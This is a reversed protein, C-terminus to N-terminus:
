STHADSKRAWDLAERPYAEARKYAAEAEHYQGRAALLEAHDSEVQANWNARHYDDTRPWTRADSILADNRHVYIEAQKLDGLNIYLTAINRNALFNWERGGPETIPRVMRKRIALAKNWEGARQYETALRGMITNLESNSLRSWEGRKFAMDCDAVANTFDGLTRRAQCRGYYFAALDENAWGSGPEANAKTHLQAIVQPDPKEADLIATIDAITRPPAVFGLSSQQAEAGAACLGSVLCM